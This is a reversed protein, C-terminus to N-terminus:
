KYMAAVGKKNVINYDTETRSVNYFVTAASLFSKRHRETRYRLKFLGRSFVSKRSPLMSHLAHSHKDMITKTQKSLIRREVAVYQTDVPTSLVSRM